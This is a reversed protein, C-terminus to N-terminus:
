VKVDDRPRKPEKSPMDIKVADLVPNLEVPKAEVTKTKPAEVKVTMFVHPQKPNLKVPEPPVELKVVRPIVKPKVKPPPPPTPAVPVMTVPQMLETTRFSLATKMQEPSILPILLLFGLIALQGGASVGIRDWRPKSEPLLALRASVPRTGIARKWAEANAARSRNAQFGVGMSTKRPPDAIMTTM